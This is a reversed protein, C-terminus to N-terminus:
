YKVQKGSKNVSGFRDAFLQERKKVQQLEVEDELRLQIERESEKPLVLVM